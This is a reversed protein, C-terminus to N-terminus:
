DLYGLDIYISRVIQYIMGIWAEGSMNHLTQYSEIRQPNWRGVADKIDDDDLYPSPLVIAILAKALDLEQDVQLEIASSREDRKTGDSSSDPVSPYRAMEFVGQAEFQRNPLEVNKRSSGSFYESNDVYFTGVIKQASELKPDVLFDEAQSGSDFFNKYFEREFAGTDFPFSYLFL